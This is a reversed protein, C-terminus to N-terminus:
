EKWVYKEMRSSKSVDGSKEVFIAAINEDECLKLGAILGSILLTKAYVDAFVPDNNVVTVCTLAENVSQKTRADILHNKKQGNRYWARKNIGSTAVATDKLLLTAIQQQADFPNEVEIAWYDYGKQRDIGGVYMDGGIDVCFDSYKNELMEKGKKVAFGKAIGGLDIQLGNPKNVTLKEKNLVLDKTTFFTNPKNAYHKDIFGDNKSKVYGEELLYPLICVDFIGTTKNYYLQALELIEFFEETVNIESVKNNFGDLYNGKIFRSYNKEFATLYDVLENIDKALEEVTLTESHVCFYAKCSMLNSVNKEFFPM